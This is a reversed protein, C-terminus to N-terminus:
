EQAGQDIAYLFSRELPTWDERKLSVDSASDRILSLLVMGRSADQVGLQMNIRAEREHESCLQSYVIMSTVKNTANNPLRLTRGFISRGCALIMARHQVDENNSFMMDTLRQEVWRHADGRKEADCYAHEFGDFMCRRVITYEMKPFLVLAIWDARVPSQQRMENPVLSSLVSELDSTSIHEVLEHACSRTLTATQSWQMCTKPAEQLTRNEGKALSFLVGGVMCVCLLWSAIVDTNRLKLVSLRM